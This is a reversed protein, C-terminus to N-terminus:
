KIKSQFSKAFNDYSQTTYAKDGFFSLIVELETPTKYGPVQQLALKGDNQTILFVSTPYAPQGNLLAMAFQHTKGAKGDNIYTQGYFTVNDSGEANFKVPYFKNNLIDAIVSNTFTDKDMRKCWGCWDTYTDIFIPRPNQKNLKEAEQITYWKVLSGEPATQAFSYVSFCLLSALTLIINKKMTLVTIPITCFLNFYKLITM